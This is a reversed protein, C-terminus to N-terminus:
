KERILFLADKAGLEIAGEVRAGNNTAPDQKATGKIRRWTKNPFLARLDFTFARASPNALVLGNEFERVMADQSASARLDSIWIPANGEVLFSLELGQWETAYHRYTFAKQNVWANPLENPRPSAGFRILRAIEPAYGALPDARLTFTFLLDPSTTSIGTLKFRLDGPNKAAIKIANGERTFELGDGQLRTLVDVGDFLNKEREGLHVAAGLPKGLWGVKKGDGDM